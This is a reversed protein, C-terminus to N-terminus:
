ASSNSHLKELTDNPQVITHSFTISKDLTVLSCCRESIIEVFKIFCSFDYCIENGLIFCCLICIIQTRISSLLCLRSLSSVLPSWSAVHSIHISRNQLQPFPHLPPMSQRVADQYM